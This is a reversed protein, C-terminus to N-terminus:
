MIQITKKATWINERKLSNLYEGIVKSVELKSMQNIVNEKIGAEKLIKLQKVSPSYKDASKNVSGKADQSSPISGGVGITQKYPSRNQGALFGRQYSCAEKFITDFTVFGDKADTTRQM